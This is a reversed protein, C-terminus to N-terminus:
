RSPPNTPRAAILSTKGSGNPGAFMVVHQDLAKDTKEDPM